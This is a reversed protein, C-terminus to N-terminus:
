DQGGGLWKRLNVGSIITCPLKHAYMENKPASSVKDFQALDVSIVLSLMARMLVSYLMSYLDCLM